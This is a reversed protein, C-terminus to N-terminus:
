VYKKLEIKKLLFYVVPFFLVNLFIEKGTMSSFLPFSNSGFTEGSFYVYIKIISDLFLRNALTAFIITIALILARWNRAAVLFRKSIFGVFFATLSFSIVNTGIPYFFFVDFIFGALINRWLAIEFGKEVTWFILLLLLINPGIGWFFMDSFVAQQLIASFFIIFFIVIKQLM